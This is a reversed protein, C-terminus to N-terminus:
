TWYMGGMSPTRPSAPSLVSQFFKSITKPIEQAKEKVSFLHCYQVGVVAKMIVVFQKKDSDDVVSHMIQHVDAQVIVGNDERDIMKLGPQM